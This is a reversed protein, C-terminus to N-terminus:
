NLRHIHVTQGIKLDVVPASRGKDQVRRCRILLLLLYPLPRILIRRIAIGYRYDILIAALDCDEASGFGFVRSVLLQSLRCLLVLGRIEKVSM